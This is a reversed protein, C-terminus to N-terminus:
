RQVLLPQLCVCGLGSLQVAQPHGDTVEAPPAAWHGVQISGTRNVQSPSDRLWCQLWTPTCDISVSGAKQLSEPTHARNGAWPPLTTSSSYLWLCGTGSRPFAIYGPNDQKQSGEEPTGAWDAFLLEKLTLTASSDEEDPM